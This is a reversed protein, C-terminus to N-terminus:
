DMPNMCFIETPKQTRRCPDECGLFQVWLEQTEQMASLTKVWQASLYLSTYIELTKEHPISFFFFFSYLSSYQQPGLYPLKRSHLFKTKM